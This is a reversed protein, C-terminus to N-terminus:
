GIIGFLSVMFMLIAGAFAGVLGVSLIVWRSILKRESLFEKLTKEM